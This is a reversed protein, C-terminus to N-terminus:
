RASRGTRWSGQEMKKARGILFRIPIYPLQTSNPRKLLLRNLGQNKQSRLCIWCHEANPGAVDNNGYFREKANSYDDGVLAGREDYKPNLNYKLMVDYQKYADKMEKHFKEISGSERAGKRIIKKCQEEEESDAKYREIDELSPIAKHNIQGVSDLVKNIMAVVAFTQHAEDYKKGFAATVKTYM